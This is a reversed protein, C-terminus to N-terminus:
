RVKPEQHAEKCKEYVSWLDPDSVSVLLRAGDWRGDAIYIRGLKDEYFGFNPVDFQIAGGQGPYKVGLQHVMKLPYGGTLRWFWKFM